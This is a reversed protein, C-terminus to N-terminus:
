FFRQCSFLGLTVSFQFSAFSTGYGLFYYISPVMTLENFCPYNRRKLDFDLANQSCARFCSGSFGRELLKKGFYFEMMGGTVAVDSPGSQEKGM